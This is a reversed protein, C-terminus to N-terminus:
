RHRRLEEKALLQLLSERLASVGELDLAHLTTLALSNALLMQDAEAPEQAGEEARSILRSLLTSLGGERLRRVSTPKPHGRQELERSVEADSKRYPSENACGRLYALSAALLAMDEDDVQRLVRQHLVQFRFLADHVHLSRQKKSRLLRDPLPESCWGFWSSRLKETGHLWYFVIDSCTCEFLQRLSGALRDLFAELLASSVLSGKLDVPELESAQEAAQSAIIRRYGVSGVKQALWFRAETFLRFSRSAQRLRNADLDMTQFRALSWEVAQSVPDNADFGFPALAHVEAFDTFACDLLLRIETEHERVLRARGNTSWDTIDKYAAPPSSATMRDGGLVSLCCSPM